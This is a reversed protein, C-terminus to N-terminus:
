NGPAGTSLNKLVIANQYYFDLELIYNYATHGVRKHPRSMHIVNNHLGYAEPLSTQSGGLDKHM